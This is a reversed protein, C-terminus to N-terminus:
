TYHLETRIPEALDARRISSTGFASQGSARSRLMRSCSMWERAKM